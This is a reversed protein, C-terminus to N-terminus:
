PCAVYDCFVASARPKDGVGYRWGEVDGGHVTYNGAGVPSYSWAGAGDASHFYAWYQGNPGVLCGSQTAENGFGNIACVAGGQGAFGYTTVSAVRQLAALGSTGNGVDVTATQVSAGTDIVIVATTSSAAGARRADGSLTAGVTLA